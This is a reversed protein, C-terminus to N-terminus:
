GKIAKVIFDQEAETLYPSMPLSMIQSSIKESIPFDGSSSGTPVRLSPTFSLNGTSSDLNTYRKLPVGIIMDGMGSNTQKM